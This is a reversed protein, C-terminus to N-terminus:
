NRMLAYFKHLLGRNKMGLSVITMLLLHVLVVFLLLEAPIWKFEFTDGWFTAAVLAIGSLITAFWTVRPNRWFTSPRLIDVGAINWVIMVGYLIFAITTANRATEEDSYQYALFYMFSLGIGGVFGATIIYDMVDDRFRRILQPRLLSLAILAAPMNTTGFASWSIQRPTIPFPATMLLAFVFVLTNYLNKALFIKTTGFIKQTIETGERFALPLTSLANNLLVIDAVDKSIQAGDNMVIALDAEKLAPVDNVGDGVMAVYEGQKRLAAIIRRKDDPEIRAFVDTRMVVDEIEPDSMMRLKDGTYCAEVDMGAASAIAKVTRLNDGSIVKLKVNQARFDELTQQIDHRVRDQIAIMAVPIAGSVVYDDTPAYESRAFGVVRLGQQSLEAVQDSFRHDEGFVREPAGLFFTEHPLIVAGWKRISMFPVERLKRPYDPAPDDGFLYSAIAGATTNRHSLNSIYVSLDREIREIPSNDLPIIEIVSLKNETLTGTKDFCLVSVNAMSEVANVRQILTQHRSIKVAGISLSLITVLILGQPVLSTVFVITNRVIEFFPEGRLYGSIVIMPGLAALVLLTIKVITAIKEQTPTLTNKYIRATAALRNITSRRGVETAVMIGTGALCFSGSYVPDDETKHVSDSEGTLHSEDMELSDSYLVSGDVALRDGPKIFIVEDKVIAKSEVVTREGDRLVAVSQAALDALRNLKRKAHLEQATGIVSNGVVSFGAFLVTIYDESILVIVLLVFLVVNFINFVNYRFIEWYSRGGRAEFANVEGRRVREAVDASTLGVIHTQTSRPAEQETILAM